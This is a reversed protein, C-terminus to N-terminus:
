VFDSLFCIKGQKVYLKTPIDFYLTKGALIENFWQHFAFIPRFIFCVLSDRTSLHTNCDLRRGHRSWMYVPDSLWDTTTTIIGDASKCDMKVGESCTLSCCCVILSCRRCQWNLALQQIIWPRLETAIARYRCLKLPFRIEYKTSVKWLNM